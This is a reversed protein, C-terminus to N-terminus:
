PEARVSLPAGQRTTAAWGGASDRKAVFTGREGAQLAFDDMQLSVGEIMLVRNAVGKRISVVAFRGDMHLSGASVPEAGYNAIIVDRGARTEVCAAAATPSDLLTELSLVHPQTEYADLATMFNAHAGHRRALVVPVRDELPRWGYGPGMAFYCETSKAGAMTIRFVQPRDEVEAAAAAVPPADAPPETDAYETNRNHISTWVPSVGPMPYPNNSWYVRVRSDDPRVRLAYDTTSSSWDIRDVFPDTHSDAQLGTDPREIRWTASWAGDSTLKVPEELFRYTENGALEAPQAKAPTDLGGTCHWIWDIDVRPGGAVHFLDVFYADDILAILRIQDHDRYCGNAEGAM